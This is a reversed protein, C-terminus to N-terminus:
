WRKAVELDVALVRPGFWNKLDSEVWLLLERKRRGGALKEIGKVLEGFTVVSTYVQEADLSGVWRVVRPEPDPKVLESIVPTDILYRM